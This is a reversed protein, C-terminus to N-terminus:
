DEKGDGLYDAASRRDVFLHHALVPRSEIVWRLLLGVRHVVRVVLRLGAPFAVEIPELGLLGLRDGSWIGSMM